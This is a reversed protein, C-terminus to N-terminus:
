ICPLPPPPIDASCFECKNKQLISTHPLTSSTRSFLFRAWLGRGVPTSNTIFQILAHVCTCVCSGRNEWRVVHRARESDTFVSHLQHARRIESPVRQYSHQCSAGLGGGGGGLLAGPDVGFLLLLLLLLLMLLQLLLLMLFLLVALLLTLLPLLLLLSPLLLWCLCHLCFCCCSCPLRHSYYTSVKSLFNTHLCRCIDAFCHVSACLYM